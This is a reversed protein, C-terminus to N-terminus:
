ILSNLQLVSIMIALLCMVLCIIGILLYVVMAKKFRKPNGKFPPDAEKFIPEVFGIYGEKLGRIFSKIFILSFFALPIAMAFGLIINIEVPLNSISM